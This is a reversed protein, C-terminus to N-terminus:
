LGPASLSKVKLHMLKRKAKIEGIWAKGKLPLWEAHTICKKTTIQRICKIRCLSANWFCTCKMSSRLCSVCFTVSERLLQTVICIKIENKLSEIVFKKRHMATCTHKTAIVFSPANTRQHSWSIVWLRIGLASSASQLRYVLVKKYYLHFVLIKEWEM